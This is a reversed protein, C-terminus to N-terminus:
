RKRRLIGRAGSRKIFKKKEQVESLAGRAKTKPKAKPKAKKTPPKPLPKDALFASVEKELQQLNIDAM